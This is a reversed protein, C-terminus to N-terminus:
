GYSNDNSNNNKNELYSGSKKSSQVSLDQKLDYPRDQKLKGNSKMAQLLIYIKILSNEKLLFFSVLVPLKSYLECKLKNYRFLCM